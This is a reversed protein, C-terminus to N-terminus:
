ESLCVFGEEGVATPSSPTPGTKVKWRNTRSSYGVVIVSTLFFLCLLGEQLRMTRSVFARIV